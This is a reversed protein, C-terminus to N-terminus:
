KSGNRRPETNIKETKSYIKSSPTRKQWASGNYSTSTYKDPCRNPKPEKNVNGKIYSSNMPRSYSPANLSVPKVADRQAHIYSANEVNRNKYNRHDRMKNQSNPAQVARQM